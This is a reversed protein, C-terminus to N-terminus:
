FQVRMSISPAEDKNAETVKLGRSTEKPTLADVIDDSSLEDQAYSVPVQGVSALGLLLGMAALRAVKLMQSVGFHSHPPLGRLHLAGPEERQPPHPNSGATGDP